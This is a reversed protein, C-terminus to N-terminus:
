KIRELAVERVREWHDEKLIELAEHPAKKNHAVGLRVSDNPHKSLKVLLEHPTRRKMALILMVDEHQLEFLKHIIPMSITKNHAVWPAFDPFREIVELWVEDSAADHAARQYESILESTRLRIFEEASDIVRNAELFHRSTRAPPIELSPQTIFNTINADLLRNNKL